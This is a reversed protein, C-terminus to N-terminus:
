YSPITNQIQTTKQIVQKQRSDSVHKYAFWVVAAMFVVLFIIMPIFGAQNKNQIAM